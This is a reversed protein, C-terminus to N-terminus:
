SFATTLLKEAVTEAGDLQALHMLLSTALVDASFPSGAVTGIM